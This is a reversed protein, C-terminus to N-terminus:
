LEREAAPSTERGRVSGPERSAGARLLELTKALVGDGSARKRRADLSQGLRVRTGGVTPLVHPPVRSRNSRFRIPTGEVMPRVLQSPGVLRDPGQAPTAGMMQFRRRRWKPLVVAGLQFRVDPRQHTLALRGDAAVLDVGSGRREM